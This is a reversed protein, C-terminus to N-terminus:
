SGSRKLVLVPEAKMNKGTGVKGSLHSRALTMGLEMELELGVKTCVELMDKKLTHKRFMEAVNLVM